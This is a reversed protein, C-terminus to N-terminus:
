AKLATAKTGERSQLAMNDTILYYGLFCSYHDKRDSSLFTAHPSSPIGRIPQGDDGCVFKLRKNGGSELWVLDSQQGDQSPHFFCRMVHADPLGMNRGTHVVAILYYPNAIGNRLLSFDFGAVMSDIRICGQERLIRDAVWAVPHTGENPPAGPELVGKSSSYGSAFALCNVMPDLEIEKQRLDTFAKLAEPAIEDQDTPLFPTITQPTIEAAHFGVELTQSTITPFLATIQHTSPYGISGLSRNVGLDVPSPPLAVDPPMPPPHNFIIEATAALDDLTTDPTQSKDMRLKPPMPPCNRLTIKLITRDWNQVIRSLPQETMGSPIGRENHSPVTSKQNLAEPNSQFFSSLSGRLFFLGENLEKYLAENEPGELKTALLKLLADTQKLLEAVKPQLQSQTQGLERLALHLEVTSRAAANLTEQSHKTSEPIQMIEHLQAAEALAESAKKVSAEKLAESSATASARDLEAMEEPSLRTIKGPVRKVIRSPPKLPSSASSAPFARQGSFAHQVVRDTKERTANAEDDDDGRPASHDRISDSSDTPGINTM